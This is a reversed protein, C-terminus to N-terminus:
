RAPLSRTPRVPTEGYRRYLYRNLRDLDPPSWVAIRKGANTDLTLRPSGATSYIM